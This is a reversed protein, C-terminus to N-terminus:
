GLRSNRACLAGRAAANVDFELTDGDHYFCYFRFARQKEDSWEPRESLVFDRLAQEYRKLEPLLSSTGNMLSEEDALLVVDRLRETEAAFAESEALKVWLPSFDAFEEATYYIMRGTNRM